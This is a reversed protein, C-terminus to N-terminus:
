LLHHELELLFRRLSDPNLEYFISTGRKTAYLFGENCLLNMHHSITAPALHLKEAIDQGNCPGCKLAKLIELRSKDGISKLRSVLSASQDSYKAVLDTIQEYLVGFYLCSETFDWRLGHFGMLCPLVTLSTTEQVATFNSFIKSPDNGIQAKAFAATARCLGSMDPLHELFLGTAKRLIVDLEELYDDISYYLATCVWKVDETCGCKLLYRILANLSDVSALDETPLNLMRGIIKNLERLRENEPLEGYHTRSKLAAYLPWALSTLGGSRATFFFRLRDENTSLNTNVYNEVDIFPQILPDLEFTPINYKETLHARVEDASHQTDSAPQFRRELLFICEAEPNFRDLISLEM